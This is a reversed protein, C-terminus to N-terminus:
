SARTIMMSRDVKIVALRCIHALCMIVEYLRLHYILDVSLDIMLKQIHVRMHLRVRHPDEEIQWANLPDLRASMSLQVCAWSGLKIQTRCVIPM